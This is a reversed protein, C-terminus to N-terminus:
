QACDPRRSMMIASFLDHQHEQKLKEQVLPM